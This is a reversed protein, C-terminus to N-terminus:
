RAPGRATGAFPRRIPDGTIGAGGDTVRAPGAEPETVRDDHYARREPGFRVPRGDPGAELAPTGGVVLFCQAVVLLPAKAIGGLVDTEQGGDDLALSLQSLFRQDSGRAFPLFSVPPM